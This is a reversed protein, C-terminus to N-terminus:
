VRKIYKKIIIVIIWIVILFSFYLFVNNILLFLMLMSSFTAAINTVIGDIAIIEHDDSMYKQLFPVTLSYIPSYGLAICGISLSLLIINYEPSFLMLGSLICNIIIFTFSIIIGQMIDLKQIIKIGIISFVMILINEISFVIEPYEFIRNIVYESVNDEAWAILIILFLILIPIYEKRFYKRSDIVNNKNKNPKEEIIIPTKDKFLLILAVNYTLVFFGGLLLTFPISITAIFGAVFLGIAYGLEKVIQYNAFHQKCDDKILLQKYSNNSLGWFISSLCLIFLFCFYHINLLITLFLLILCIFYLSSFLITSFGLYKLKKDITRGIKKYLYSGILNFLGYLFV